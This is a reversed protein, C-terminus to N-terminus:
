CEVTALINFGVHGKRLSTTTFECAFKTSSTDANIQLATVSIATEETYSVELRLPDPM